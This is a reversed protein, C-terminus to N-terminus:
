WYEYATVSRTSGYQSLDISETQLGRDDYRIISKSFYVFSNTLIEKMTEADPYYTYTAISSPKDTCTGEYYTSETVQNKNNFKSRTAYTINGSPSKSASETLNNNIDYKNTQISIQKSFSGDSNSETITKEYILNGKKDYKYEMLTKSTSIFGNNETTEVSSIFNGNKDYKSISKNNIPSCQLRNPTQYYEYTSTYAGKTDYVDTEKSQLVGHNYLENGVSKGKVDYKYIYKSTIVGSSDIIEEAMNGNADYKYKYVLTTMKGDYNPNETYQGSHYSSTFEVIRSQEDITYKISSIINNLSDYGINEILRHNDNYKLVSRYMIKGTKGTTEEETLNGSKDYTTKTKTDPQLNSLISDNSKYSLSTISRIKYKVIYSLTDPEKKTNTGSRVGDSKIKQSLSPTAFAFILSAFAILKLNNIM